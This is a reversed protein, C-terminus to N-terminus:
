GVYESQISGYNRGAPVQCLETPVVNHYFIVATVGWSRLLSVCFMVYENKFDASRVGRNEVESTEELLDADISGNKLNECHRIRQQEENSLLM